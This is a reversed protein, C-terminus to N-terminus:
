PRSEPALAFSLVNGGSAIAVYQRGNVLYSMPSAKWIQNTEFHWLTRGTKADVAAFGSSAAPSAPAAQAAPAILFLLCIGAAAGVRLALLIKKLLPTRKRSM